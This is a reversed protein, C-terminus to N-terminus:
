SEEAPRRTEGTPMYHPVNNRLKAISEDILGVYTRMAASPGDESKALPPMDYRESGDSKENTSWQAKEKAFNDLERLRKKNLTRRAIINALNREDEEIRRRYEARTHDLCENSLGKCPHSPQVGNLSPPPVSNEM